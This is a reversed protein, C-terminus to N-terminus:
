RLDVKVLDRRVREINDDDVLEMARGGRGVRAQQVMQPRPNQESQRRGRFSSVTSAYELPEITANGDFQPQPIREVATQQARKRVKSQM